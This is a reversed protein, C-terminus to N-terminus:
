FIPTLLSGVTEKKAGMGQFPKKKLRVLHESFIPGLSPWQDDAPEPVDPMDVMGQLSLYLMTLEHVSVKNPEIKCLLTNALAKIFYRLTPHFIDTQNAIGSDFFGAAIHGWFQALGPFPPDTTRARDPNKFWYIECLTHLPIRYRIGRIFFTLTGESARRAVDNM